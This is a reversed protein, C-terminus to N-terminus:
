VGPPGMSVVDVGPASGNVIGGMPPPATPMPASLPIVVEGVAPIEEPLRYGWMAYYNRWMMWVDPTYALNSEQSGLGSSLAANMESIARDCAEQSGRVTVERTPPFTGPTPEGPIHIKTNTRAQISRITEGGSGIIIGVNDDRLIYVVTAGGGGSDVLQMMEEICGTRHRATPGTITCTRHMPDDRDAEKPIQIRCSWKSQLGKITTGGKGIILGVHQHPVKATDVEGPIAAQSSVNADITEQLLKRARAIADPAGSIYINRPMGRSVERLPQTKIVAGSREQMGRINEGGRGIVAGLHEPPVSITVSEGILAKGRELNTLQRNKLEGRKSPDFAIDRVMKEARRCADDHPAIILVHLDDDEEEEGARQAGRGRLLIKAGSKEQLERITAGGPGVILGM